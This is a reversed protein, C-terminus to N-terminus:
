TTRAKYNKLLADYAKNFKNLDSRKLHNLYPRLLTLVMLYNCQAYAVAASKQAHSLQTEHALRAREANRKACIVFLRESEYPFRAVLASHGSEIDWGM